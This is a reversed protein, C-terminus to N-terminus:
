PDTCKLDETRSKRTMLVVCEVHGTRPFMDVAAAREPSYGHEHLLKCDRAATASNCSIMLVAAPEMAAVASLTEESCGKRPPDLIVIDPRTGADSLSRACTGADACIFEANRIGNKQANRRANEVADPNLEVGIVRRVQRAMSLGITGAGCYLDLLTQEQSLGAMEAATRYLLEAGRRNVQYFSAPSLEVSIGCLVDTIRGSGYLVRSRDGLVVNTDARNVNIVLTELEPIADLLAQLLEKEAPLADGNIVPCVMLRGTSEAYRLYVHRLLGSREREDYATVGHERCFERFVELVRAFVPPHLKCDTCPVLRHSNRAFFGFTLAGDEDYGAPFQAKNRYYETQPAPYIREVPLSLGGIRRFHNEVLSRKAELEAEYTIHRFTCGGCRGFVPCDPQIRAPSPSTIEDIIGYGYNKLVKVARVRVTDGPFARPIFLPFGEHRGVGSGEATVDTIEVTVIDNKQIM